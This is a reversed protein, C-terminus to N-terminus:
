RKEAGDLKASSYSNQKAKEEKTSYISGYTGTDWVSVQANRQRDLVEEKLNDTAYTDSYDSKPFLYYTWRQSSQFGGTHRTNILEERIVDFETRRREYRTLVLSYLGQALTVLLTEDNRNARFATLFGKLGKILWEQIARTISWMFLSSKAEGVDAIALESEFMDIITAAADERRQMDAFVKIQPSYDVTTYHRMVSITTKFGDANRDNAGPTNKNPYEKSFEQFSLVMPSLQGSIKSSKLQTVEGNKEIRVPKNVRFVNFDVISSLQRFDDARFDRDLVAYDFGRLIGEGYAEFSTRIGYNSVIRPKEMFYISFAKAVEEIAEDLSYNRKGNYWTDRLNGFDYGYYAKAAPEKKAWQSVESLNKIKDKRSEDLIAVKLDAFMSTWDFRPFAGEFKMIVGLMNERIIQESLRSMSSNTMTKHTGPAGIIDVTCGTHRKLADVNKEMLAYMSRKAWKCRLRDFILYGIVTLGVPGCFRVLPWLLTLESALFKFLIEPHTVNSCFAFYYSIADLAFSFGNFVYAVGLFLGVRTLATGTLEKWYALVWRKTPYYAKDRIWEFAILPKSRHGIPEGNPESYNGKIIAAAPVFLIAVMLFRSLGLLNYGVSNWTYAAYDGNILVRVSAYLYYLFADPSTGVPAYTGAFDILDFPLPPVGIETNGGIVMFYSGISTILSGLSNILNVSPARYVLIAVVLGVFTLAVAVDISLRYIKEKNM